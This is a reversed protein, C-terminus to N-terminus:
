EDLMPKIKKGNHFFQTLIATLGLGLVTIILPIKPSLDALVGVVIGNLGFAAAMIAGTIGMIWGQSDADVQNSFITLLVSYVVAMAISLPVVTLWASFPSPIAVTIFAAICGIISGFLVNNKLSFYKTCYDVLIGTGIGFGIGMLAMYLSINLTSFNYERLLFMSIFSYFGSWGFVMILLTISLTRIKEHRFASVFINIAHHIKIKVKGTKYFTEHFLFYLLILNLLSLLAAFYFPTTYNFWPLINPDSFLGGLLPGFIFGISIFFLILGLNRAKHEPPSIDVITAQAIAQSGATFGAIMRGILLLSFSDILVGIASLLYGLFAGILCIMLSKKRGIQDSLDGLFSAGFFWCLMFIGMTSGFIFNRLNASVGTFFGSDPNIILANLLPVVLGLGMSDIFLILFLPSAALLFKKNSTIATMREHDRLQLLYDVITM